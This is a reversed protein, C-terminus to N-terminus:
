VTKKHEDTNLAKFLFYILFPWAVVSGVLASIGAGIIGHANILPVITLALGTFSVLTVITNYEQKRVALFVATIPESMGRIIGFVALVKIVPIAGEWGEGLLIRVIVDPYFYFIMGFPLTLITVVVFTKFFAKRLREKDHAIKTFVPFTVKGFVDSVESIPLSSIKYGVQYIGLASTDMLRGVMIDDVERFAYDFVRYATVWKGRHIVKKIRSFEFAFSPRPAIFVWSIAVELIVGAILGWIFSSANGTIAAAIIAVLADIFFVVFRLNFEKNFQLNKQYNILSPNIFGRIFPVAATLRLLNLADPSNFFNAIFPSLLLILLSIFIGRFISIVWATNLYKRTDGKEQILFINVGTDTVIELFALVLSAIGFLGFQAPSLIRALIAIKFFAIGRTSIRLLGMWSVGMLTDKFYGV